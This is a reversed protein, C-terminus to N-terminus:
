IQGEIMKNINKRFSKQVLAKWNSYAVIDEEKQREPFFYEFKKTFIFIKWFFRDVSFDKYYLLEITRPYPPIDLLVMGDRSFMKHYSADANFESLADDVIKREIKKVGKLDITKRNKKTPLVKFLSDLIDININFYDVVDYGVNTINTNIWSDIKEGSILVNRNNKIIEGIFELDDYKLLNLGNNFENDLKPLLEYFCKYKLRVKWDLYTLENAKRIRDYFFKFKNNSCGEKKLHVKNDQIYVCKPM